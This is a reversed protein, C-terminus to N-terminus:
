PQVGSNQDFDKFDLILIRHDVIEQLYNEDFDKFMEHNDLLRILINTLSKRDNELIECSNWPWINMDLLFNQDFELLFIILFETTM